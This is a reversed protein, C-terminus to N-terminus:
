LKMTKLIVDNIKKVDFRELALRRSERGMSKILSPDNVFREMASALAKVDRVPVLFGNVGDIVTERCGVADTTIVPRGMAMAEQTSRPVGERYSPLVYVNARAIWPRVDDIQGPWEILGEQVWGQIESDKLGSPNVDIGGVLIFRAEPHRGRVLRAAGVFERIGKEVLLRAILLFVPPSDPIPTPLWETLDVGTGSVKVVKERAILNRSVFWEADEANQFFVRECRAFAARYMGSVIRRLLRRRSSGVDDQM